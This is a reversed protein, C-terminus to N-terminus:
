SDSDHFKILAYAVAERVKEGKFNEPCVGRNTHTVGDVEHGAGVGWSLM